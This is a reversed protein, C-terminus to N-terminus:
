EANDAVLSLFYEYIEPHNIKIYNELEDVSVLQRIYPVLKLINSTYDQYLNTYFSKQEEAETLRKVLDKRKEQDHFWSVRHKFSSARDKVPVKLLLATTFKKSYDGNERMKKLITVQREKIVSSLDMARQKSIEEGKYAHVVAPHLKEILNPALKHVITKLGFTGAITKEDIEKLARRLMVQEQYNGLPNVMRNFTYAEKESHIICPILNVELKECAKYRLYGDLIYYKSNEPDEYVYLPEILGISKISNYIKKFGANKELKIENRNNIPILNDISIDRGKPPKNM